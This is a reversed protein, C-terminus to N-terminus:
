LLYQIDVANLIFHSASEGIIFYFSYGADRGNVRVVTNGVTVFNYGDGLVVYVVGEGCCLGEAVGKEEEDVIGFGVFKDYYVVDWSAVVAAKADEADGGGDSHCQTFVEWVPEGLTCRILFVKDDHHATAIRGPHLSLTVLMLTPIGPPITRYKLKPTHKHIRPVKRTHNSHRQGHPRMHRTKLLPLKSLTRIPRTLIQLGLGIKGHIIADLAPHHKALLQSHQVIRIIPILQYGLQYPPTGVKNEQVGHERLHPSRHVLHVDRRM